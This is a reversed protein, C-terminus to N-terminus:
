VEGAHHGPVIIHHNGISDTLFYRATGPARLVVQTRCLDREAQNRVLTADVAFCQKLDPSVKLVTVPGEALEGRM